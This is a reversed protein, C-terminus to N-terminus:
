LERLLSWTAEQPRQTNVVAGACEAKNRDVFGLKAPCITEQKSYIDRPAEELFLSNTKGMRVACCVAWYVM